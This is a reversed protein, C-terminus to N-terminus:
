GKGNTAEQKGKNWFDIQETSKSQLEGIIMYKIMYSSEREVFFLHKIM